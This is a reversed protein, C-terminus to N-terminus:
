MINILSTIDWAAGDKTNGSLDVAASSPIAVQFYLGPNEVNNSNIITNDKFKFSVLNPMLGGNNPRILRNKCDKFTNGVISISKITNGGQSHIVTEKINEFLCNEVTLSNWCANTAYIPRAVGIFKCNRIVVDATNVTDDQGAVQGYLGIGFSTNNNNSIITCNEIVLSKLKNTGQKNFRIFSSNALDNNITINSITLSEVTVGNASDSTIFIQDILVDESGSIKVNKLTEGAQLGQTLDLTGYSVPNGGVDYAPQLVVETNNRLNQLVANINAPSAEVVELVADRDYQNDFSDSEATMQGAVVAVDITIDKGQYENGSEEKMHVALAFYDTENVISPDQAIGDLVGNQAAVITGAVVEGTQVGPIAKIAAWSAPPTFGPASADVGDLIAYELAGVLGGDIINLIINYKLALNGNNRVGLYVIQTKGPEWLTDASDNQAILSDAGFIAQDEGAISVYDSGNWMILDVDLDGAVIKNSYSAAQDTFWALTTGILMCMCVLLSFLSLVLKRRASKM